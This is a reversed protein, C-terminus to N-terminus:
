DERAKNAKRRVRRIEAVQRRDRTIVDPDGLVMQVVPGETDTFVMQAESLRETRSEHPLELGLIDGLQAPDAYGMGPADTTGISFGTQSGGDLLTQNGQEDLARPKDEGSGEVLVEQVWGWEAEPAEAIVQRYSRTSETVTVDGEGQNTLDVIQGQAADSRTMAVAFTNDDVKVAHYDVDTELPEPPTGGSFSIIDGTRLKHPVPRTRVRTVVVQGAGNNTIAIANGNDAAPRSAAVKLTNSDVRIAYYNTDAVLPAPPTGQTIQIVSGTPMEHASKTTIANAAVNVSAVERNSTRRDGATTLTNNALSVSAIQRGQKDKPAQVIARTAAPAASTGKWSALSNTAMSLVLSTSRDVPVEFWVSLTARSHSTPSNVLGVRLRLGALTTKESVIELVNTFESNVTIVPGRGQSPAVTIDYIRKSRALRNLNSRIFDTLVDEAPGEAYWRVSRQNDISEGPTPWGLADGLIGIGTTGALALAPLGHDDSAPDYQRIRLTERTGRFDITLLETRPPPLVVQEAGVALSWLGSWIGPRNWRPALRPEQIPGDPRLEDYRGWTSGTPMRRWLGIRYFPESM